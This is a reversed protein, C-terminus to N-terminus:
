AQALAWAAAPDDELRRLAADKGVPDPICLICSLHWIVVILSQDEVKFM